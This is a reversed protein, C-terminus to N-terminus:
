AHATADPPTQHQPRFLAPWNPSPVVVFREAGTAIDPRPEPTVFTATPPVSPPDVLPRVMRATWAIAGSTVDGGARALMVENM